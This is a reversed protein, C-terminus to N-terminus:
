DALIQLAEAVDAAESVQELLWVPVESGIVAAARLVRAPGAPLSEIRGQIIGRLTTPIGSGDLDAASSLARDPLARCLEELYLPNGGARAHIAQRLGLDFAQPLLSAIVQTAQEYDLPSLEIVPHGALVPDTLERSAVLVFARESQCARILRGLVERSADDAWQWDDLLLVLSRGAHAAVIVETMADILTQQPFPSGAGDPRFLEIGLLHMLVARHREVAPGLRRLGGSLIEVAEIKSATSQLGMMQRLAGVFPQLPTANAEHECYGALVDVSWPLRERFEELVRTKGVGPSGVVTLVQGQEAASRAFYERIRGLVVERGVLPTLGRQKCAAFRTAVDSRRVVRCAAVSEKKGKLALATAAEFEFFEDLGQMAAATAWLEDPGAHACLRAATNVADGVLDFSAGGGRPQAFVVGSALGSHFRIEFGKPVHVARELGRVADHIALAAEIARKADDENASPLGFTCLVGDGRWENVSGGYRYVLPDVISRLRLLIQAVEEPDALESLTTYDCLDAFLLTAYRRIDGSM